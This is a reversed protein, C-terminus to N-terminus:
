PQDDVQLVRLQPVTGASVLDLMKAVLARCTVTMRRSSALRIATQVLTAACAADIYDLGTLNVYPHRDLRRSEALAQELVHQHRYDLEGGVRIGPPSYQRCIRLLATEHYVQAAVAKAHASAAFALTVADFRDRDYECIVCLRGDAFLASVDAEFAFLQEAAASPRTAWCMDATVRLGTYGQRSARDLEDALAAVMQPGTVRDGSRLAPETPAITLQGRRTAAGGRVSRATLERALRQPSLTDTWCLVRQGRRLGDRVFAALLDLREEEDSFTLCAHDGPGLQDVTAADAM